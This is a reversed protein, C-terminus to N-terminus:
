QVLNSGLPFFFCQRHTDIRTRISSLKRSTMWWIKCDAEQEENIGSCQALSNILYMENLTSYEFPKVRQMNDTSGQALQWWNCFTAEKILIYFHESKNTYFYVKLLCKTWTNFSPLNERIDLSCMIIDWM